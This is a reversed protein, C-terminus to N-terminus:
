ILVESPDPIVIGQAACWRRCKEIYETFGETTLQTTSKTTEPKGDEHCRLFMLKFADHMEEPLYGFHAAPLGVVAIWYWRNQRHTRNKRHKRIIVDIDKGELAKIHAILLERDLYLIKGHEVSAFFVPDIM